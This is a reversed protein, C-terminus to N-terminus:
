RDFIEILEDLVTNCKIRNPNGTRRRLKYFRKQVEKIRLYETKLTSCIRETLPNSNDLHNIVYELIQDVNEERLEPLDTVKIPIERKDILLLILEMTYNKYSECLAKMENYESHIDGGGEQKRYILELIEQLEQLIEVKDDDGNIEGMKNKLENFIKGIAEERNEPITGVDFNVGGKEGSTLLTKVGESQDLNNLVIRAFRAFLDEFHESHVLEFQAFSGSVEPQKCRLNQMANIVEVIKNLRTIMADVTTNATSSLIGLSKRTEKIDAGLTETRRNLGKLILSKHLPSCPPYPKTQDFTENFVSGFARKMNEEDDEETLYKKKFSILTNDATGDTEVLRVM